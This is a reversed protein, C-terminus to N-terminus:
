GSQAEDRFQHGVAQQARIPVQRGVRERHELRGSDLPPPPRGSGGVEQRTAPYHLARRSRVAPRPGTMPAGAAHIRDMSALGTTGACRHHSKRSGSLACSPRTNPAMAAAPSGRGTAPMQGLEDLDAAATPPRGRTQAIVFARAGFRSRRRRTVHHRCAANAQRARTPLIYSRSEIGVSDGARVGAVLSNPRARSGRADQQAAM